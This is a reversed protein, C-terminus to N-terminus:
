TGNRNSWRDYGPGGGCFDRWPESGPGTRFGSGGGANNARSSALDVVPAPPPSPTRALPVVNDGATANAVSSTAVGLEGPATTGAKLREIEAELEAIRRVKGDYDEGHLAGCDRMQKYNEWMITRPDSPGGEAPAPEPLEHGPLLAILSAVATNLKGLDAQNGSLVNAQEHDIVLRLASVMDVRLNDAPSLREIDVGLLVAAEKRAEARDDTM